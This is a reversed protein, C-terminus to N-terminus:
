SDKNAFGSLQARLSKPLANISLTGRTPDYTIDEGFREASFSISLSNDRGSYRMYKKLSSRDTLIEDNPTEQKATVFETFKKPEHQDLQESIDALVVPEGIKDKEVCYEVIQAKVSKAKEEPLEESFSDVIDLFETTQQKLDIGESFNSFRNFADTLDKSGRSVIQTLYKPSDAEQWGNLHIRLAFPVKSPEISESTYPELDPGIQIIDSTQLWLIYLYDQGLLSEKAFLLATTFPTEATELQVQLQECAKNAFSLFDINEEQESKLLGIFQKHEAMDDFFGFRKNASRNMQHKATEFLSYIVGDNANLAARKDLTVPGAFEARKLKVLVIKELAM